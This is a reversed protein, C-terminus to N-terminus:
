VSITDLTANSSNLIPLLFGVSIGDNSCAQGLGLRDSHSDSHAAEVCNRGLEASRQGVIFVISM